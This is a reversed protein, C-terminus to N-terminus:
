AHVECMCLLFYSYRLRFPIIPWLKFSGRKKENIKNYEKEYMKQVSTKSSFSIVFREAKCSVEYAPSCAEGNV